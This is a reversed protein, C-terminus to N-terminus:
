DMDKEEEFYLLYSLIAERVKNAEKFNHINLTLFSSLIDEFLLDLDDTQITLDSVEIGEVGLYELKGAMQNYFVDEKFYIISLFCKLVTEKDTLLCEKIKNSLISKKAKIHPTPNQYEKPIAQGNFENSFEDPEEEDCEENAEYECELEDDENFDDDLNIDEELDTNEKNICSKLYCLYSWIDENEVPVFSLAKDLMEVDDGRLEFEVKVEKM